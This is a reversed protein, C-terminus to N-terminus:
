WPDQELPRELDDRMRTLRAALAAVHQRHHGNDRGQPVHRWVCSDGARREWADVAVSAPASGTAPVSTHVHLAGIAGAQVVTGAVMDGGVVNRTGGEAM